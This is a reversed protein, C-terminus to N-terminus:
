GVGVHPRDKDINECADITAVPNSLANHARTLLGRYIHRENHPQRSGVNFRAPLDDISAADRDNSRIGECIGRLLNDSYRSVRGDHRLRSSLTLMQDIFLRRNENLANRAVLAAEM